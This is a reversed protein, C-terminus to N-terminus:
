GLPQRYVIFGSNQAVKDYLARAQANDEKTLWYVRLCERTEALTRVAEILARGAGSGRAAPATYLDQLYCLDRESWYTDHMLWHVLGVAQGDLEAIFGGFRPGGGTLRAFASDFAQQPLTTAYFALYDRWLPEWADRDGSGIPRITIPNM